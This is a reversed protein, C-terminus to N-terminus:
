SQPLSNRKAWERIKRAALPQRLEAQQVLKTADDRRGGLLSIGAAVFFAKQDVLEAYAGDLTSVKEIWPEGHDEWANVVSQGVHSIDTDAAVPWWYDRGDCMLAGLRKRVTCDYEKPFKGTFPLADTITAVAPHYVGLNVAFTGNDGMNSKSAQVNVVATLQEGTKYFTRGSKRYGLPKLASALSIRIVADILKAVESM